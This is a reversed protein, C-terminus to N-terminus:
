PRPQATRPGSAREAFAACLDEAADCALRLKDPDAPSVAATVPLSLAFRLALSADEATEVPAYWCNRCPRPAGQALTHAALVKLALVGIGKEQAKATVRSGFGSRLWCAWNIPFLVSDFAFRELMALAAEESHSSLGLFRVPGAQRAALFTAM